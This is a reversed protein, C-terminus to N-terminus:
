VQTFNHLKGSKYKKEIVTNTITDIFGLYFSLFVNSEYCEKNMKLIEILILIM